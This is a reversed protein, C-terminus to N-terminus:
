RAVPRLAARFEAPTRGTWRKFARHFSTLESFALLFAIEGISVRDEALHRAALEQRLAALLEGFSTGEAALGRHLTRASMKLRTAVRSAQVEGDDLAAALASRVHDALSNTRPSRALRESTYRDLIAILAPDPNVSPLDLVEAPIVLANQRDM